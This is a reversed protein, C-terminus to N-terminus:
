FRGGSYARSLSHTKRTHATHELYRVPNNAVDTDKAHVRGVLTGEPANEEVEFTYSPAIFVPPEDADEM